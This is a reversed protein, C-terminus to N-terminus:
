QDSVGAQPNKKEEPPVLFKIITKKGRIRRNLINNKDGGKRRIMGGM